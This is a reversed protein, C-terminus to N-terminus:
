EVTDSRLRDAETAPAPSGKAHAAQYVELEFFQATYMGTLGGLFAGGVTDGVFHYDMGVLGIMVLAGGIGFLWRWHPYASCAVSIVAFIRATHGSPFSGYASGFHFPHFGYAGDRILSPNNNVWTDPWYRGFLFKLYYEFAMAVILSISCAFLVRDLRTLPFWALKIAALVVITSALADLTTPIYTLWRLFDFRNLQQDHAFYAAPRDVFYYSLTVLPACIALAMIARELLKRFTTRTHARGHVTETAGM